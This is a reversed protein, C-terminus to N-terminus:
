PKGHSILRGNCVKTAAAATEVMEKCKLSADKMLVDPLIVLINPEMLDQMKLTKYEAPNTVRFAIDPPRIWVTRNVTYCHPRQGQARLEKKIRDVYQKYHPSSTYIAAPPIEDEGFDGQTNEDPVADDELIDCRSANEQTTFEDQAEEFLVDQLEEAEALRIESQTVEAGGSPGPIAGFMAYAGNRGPIGKFLGTKLPAVWAAPKHKARRRRRFDPGKDEARVGHRYGGHTGGKKGQSSQNALVM